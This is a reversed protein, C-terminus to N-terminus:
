PWYFSDLTDRPGFIAQGLRLETAGEEVALKYDNSMGMSLRKLRYPFISRMNIKIQIEKLLRFCSRVESEDQSHIAMTMFGEIRLNKLHSLNKIDKDLNNPDFGYKSKERSTNVQILASIKRNQRKLEKDLLSAIRYSDISQIEKAYKAVYKVKNSQLHGIMIWNFSLDKEAESQLIKGKAEQVLNEGFHSFGIDVLSKIEDLSRTKTVPLISVDQSCREVKKSSISIEKYINELNKKLLLKKIECLQDKKM